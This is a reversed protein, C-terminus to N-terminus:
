NTEIFNLNKSVTENFGHKFNDKREEFKKLM